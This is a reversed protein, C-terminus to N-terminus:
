IWGEVVQRNFVNGIRTTFNGGDYGRATDLPTKNNIIVNNM